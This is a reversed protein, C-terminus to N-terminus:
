IKKDLNKENEFGLGTEYTKDFIDSMLPHTKFHM